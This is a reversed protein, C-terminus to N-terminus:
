SPPAGDPPGGTRGRGMPKRAENRWDQYRKWQAKGLMEKVSDDFAQQRRTLEDLMPQMRDRQERAAAPDGADFADRAARRLVVLSDRQPRTEDMFRRYLAAYGGVSDQPLQVIGAFEAPEPPGHVVVPDPSLPMGGRVGFAPRRDHRSGDEQGYPIQAAAGRALIALTLLATLPAARM